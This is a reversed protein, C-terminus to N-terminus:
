SVILFTEKIENKVMCIKRSRRGQSLRTEKREVTSAAGEGFGVGCSGALMVCGTGSQAAEGVLNLSSGNWNQISVMNRSGYMPAGKMSNEGLLGTVNKGFAAASSESGGLLYSLAITEEDGSSFSNKVKRKESRILASPLSPKIQGTADGEKGPYLGRTHFAGLM